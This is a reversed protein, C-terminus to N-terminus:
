TVNEKTFKADHLLIDAVESRDQTQMLMKDTERLGRLFDLSYMLFLQVLLLTPAAQATIESKNV